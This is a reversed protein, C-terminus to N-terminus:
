AGGQGAVEWPPRSRIVTGDDDAAYDGVGAHALATRLQASIDTFGESTRFPVAAIHDGAWSGMLAGSGRFDGGGRSGGRISAALLATLGTTTGGYGGYAAALHLDRSDGLQAPDLAEHRDLNVVAVDVGAPRVVVDAQCRWHTRGEFDRAEMRAVGHREITDRTLEGACSMSATDYYCTGDLGTEAVVEPSLDGPRGEYGVVAIRDGCWRESGLLLLLAAAPGGSQVGFEALKDLAGADMPVLVSRRTLNVICHYHGM